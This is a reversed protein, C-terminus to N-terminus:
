SIREDLQPGMARWANLFLIECPTDGGGFPHTIQDTPDSKLNNSEVPDLIPIKFGEVDIRYGQTTSNRGSEWFGGGLSTSSAGQQIGRSAGGPAKFSTQGPGHMILM